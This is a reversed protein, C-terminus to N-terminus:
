PHPLSHKSLGNQVLDTIVSKINTTSGVQYDTLKEYRTIMYKWSCILSTLIYKCYIRQLMKGTEEYITSIFANRLRENNINVM